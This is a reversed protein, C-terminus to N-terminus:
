NEMDVTEKREHQNNYNKKMMQQTESTELEYVEREDWKMDFKRESQKRGKHSWLADKPSFFIVIKRTKATFFKKLLGFKRRVM